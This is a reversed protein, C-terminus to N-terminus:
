SCLQEVLKLSPHKRQISIRKATTVVPAQFPPTICVVTFYCITNELNMDLSFQYWWRNQLVDDQKSQLLPLLLVSRVCWPSMTLFGISRSFFSYTICYLSKVISHILKFFQFVTFIICMYIKINWLIFFRFSVLLSWKVLCIRNM